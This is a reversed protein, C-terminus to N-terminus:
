GGGGRGGGGANAGANASAGADANAADASPRPNRSARTAEPKGTLEALTALRVVLPIPGPPVVPIKVVLSANAFGLQNAEVRYSGAPIQPFEFKGSEDTWSLWTKNTETNILRVTAAPVPTGEPTRVVGSVTQPSNAPQQAFNLNGCALWFLLLALTKGQLRNFIVKGRASLSARSAARDGAQRAM